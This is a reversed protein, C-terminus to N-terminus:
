SRRAKKAAGLLTAAPAVIGYAIALRAWRRRALTPALARSAARYARDITVAFGRTSVRALMAARALRLTSLWESGALIDIVALTFACPGSGGGGAAVAVPPLAAQLFRLLVAHVEREIRAYGHPSIPDPQFNDTSDGFELAFSHFPPSGAITFQRSFAYDSLSGTAPYVTTAIPGVTYRRGTVTRIADRMSQAITEHTRLLRAPAVDPFYESYANSLHGDRTGNFAPDRFTQAPDSGNEEIGWPYMVLESYAHLDICYTIPNNDLLWVLNKVEPQSAPGGAATGIFNDRTPNKSASLLGSAVFAASYYVDFDWAIDFNRNIDVGVTSPDAAVARPARNKRWDKNAPAAQSFARGDPNGLPVFIMTLTDVIRKITAAPVTLPGHTNGAADTYSPVTFDSGAQYVSILKEAFVLTADPQAWERAHMGAVILLTPRAAGAGNAIKLFSYTTPGIGPESVTANPFAAKTCLTPANAALQSMRTEFDAAPLYAM